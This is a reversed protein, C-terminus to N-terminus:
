TSANLSGWDATYVLFALQMSACDGSRQDFSSSLTDEVRQLTGQKDTYPTPFVSAAASGTVGFVVANQSGRCGKTGGGQRALTGNQRIRWRPDEKAQGGGRKGQGGRMTGEGGAM